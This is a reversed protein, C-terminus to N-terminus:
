INNKKLRPIHDKENQKTPSKLIGLLSEGWTKDTAITVGLVGEGRFTRWYPYEAFLPVFTRFNPYV